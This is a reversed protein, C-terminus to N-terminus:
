EPTNKQFLIIFIYQFGTLTVVTQSATLENKGGNKLICTYKLMFKKSKKQIKKYSIELLQDKIQAFKLLKNENMLCLYKHM